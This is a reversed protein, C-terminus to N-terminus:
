DERREGSATWGLVPAEITNGSPPRAPGAYRAPHPDSRPDRPPTRQFSAFGWRATAWMGLGTGM